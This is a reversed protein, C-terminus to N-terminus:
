EHDITNEDYINIKNGKREYKLQHVLCIADLISTLSHRSSFTATYRYAQPAPMQLHIEVGYRNELAKAIDTLTNQRFALKSACWATSIWAPATYTRGTYSATDVEVAHDPLLVIDRAPGNATVPTSVKVKGTKVMVTIKGELARVNFSTGLVETRMAQTHVIFPRGADTRVDFFAEGSEVYVLRKVGFHAAFRARSNHNLTMVSGDPLTVKEIDSKGTSIIRYKVPTAPAVAVSQAGSPPNVPLSRLYRFVAFIGAALVLIAAIRRLYPLQRIIWKEKTPFSPTEYGAERRINSLMDTGLQDWETAPLDGDGSEVEELWQAIFAQEAPTAKGELYRDIIDKLQQHDM